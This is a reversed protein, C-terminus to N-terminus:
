PAASGRMPVVWEVFDDDGATAARLAASRSLDRWRLRGHVGYPLLRVRGQSGEVRVEVFSQFFPAVNYDFLASLYEASFPWAQYRDTWWWAPRKWWPTLLEIKRAVADRSPYFAWQATPPGSPWQLATGFSTYAGGGGNVVHHVAPAGARAPEVYYELDHTDGAMLIVVGHDLLLRKLRAFPENGQAMDYAKAYFPHGLIAM